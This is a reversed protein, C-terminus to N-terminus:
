KKAAKQLTDTIQKITTIEGSKIKKAFDKRMLEVKVVDLGSRDSSIVKDRVEDWVQDNIKLLEDKPLKKRLGFQRIFGKLVGVAIKFVFIGAAVSLAITFFGEDVRQQEMIEKRIIRRLKQETIKKM